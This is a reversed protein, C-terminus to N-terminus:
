SEQLTSLTGGGARYFWTSSLSLVAIPRCPFLLHSYSDIQRGRQGGKPHGRQAWRLEEPGAKQLYYILVFLQLLVIYM